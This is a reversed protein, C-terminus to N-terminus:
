WGKRKERDLRYVFALIEAVAQYLFPPIEEYLKLAGLYQVLVEDKVVPVGADRALREIASALYGEGKAVVRPAEDKEKEYRLAVAKKGVIEEESM